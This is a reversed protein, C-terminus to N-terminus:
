GMHESKKRKYVGVSRPANVDCSIIDSAGGGRWQLSFPQVHVDFHSYMDEERREKEKKGERRGIWSKGRKAELCPLLPM